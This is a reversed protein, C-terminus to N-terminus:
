KRELALTPSDLDDASKRRVGGHRCYGRSQSATIGVAEDGLVFGELSIEPCDMIEMVPKM